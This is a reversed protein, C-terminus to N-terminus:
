AVYAYHRATLSTGYPRPVSGHLDCGAVWHCLALSHTLQSGGAISRPWVDVQLVHFAGVRNLGTWQGDKEGGLSM